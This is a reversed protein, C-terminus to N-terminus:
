KERKDLTIETIFQKLKDILIDIEIEKFKSLLKQTERSGRQTILYNYLAYDTMNLLKKIAIDYNYENLQNKKNNQINIPINSNFRKIEGKYAFNNM